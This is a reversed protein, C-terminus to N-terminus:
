NSQIIQVIGKERDIYRACFKTPKDSEMTEVFMVSPIMLNLETINIVIPLKTLKKSIYINKKFLKYSM